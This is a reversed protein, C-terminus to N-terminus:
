HAGPPKSSTGASLAVVTGIAVGAGIIAGVKLVITRVRKQKAPAIAVGAPEAATIGTVKPAEAAATGVPREPKQQPAETSSQASSSTSTDQPSSAQEAKAWEAGPSDPLEETISLREAHESALSSGTSSAVASERTSQQAVAPDYGSAEQGVVTLPVSLVLSCCAICLLHRGSPHM